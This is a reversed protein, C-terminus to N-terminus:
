RLGLRRAYTEHADDLHSMSLNLRLLLAYLSEARKNEPKRACAIALSGVCRKHFKQNFPWGRGTTIWKAPVVVRPCGCWM